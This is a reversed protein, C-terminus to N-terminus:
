ELLSCTYVPSPIGFVAVPLRGRACRVRSPRSASFTSSRPSVPLLPLDALLEFDPPELDLLEWDPLGWDPPELDPPELDLLGFDPPEFDFSELGLPVWELAAFSVSPAGAAFFRGGRLRVRLPPEEGAM